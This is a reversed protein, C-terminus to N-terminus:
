EGEVSMIEAFGYGFEDDEQEGMNIEDIFGKNDRDPM